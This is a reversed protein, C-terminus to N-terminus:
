CRGWVQLYGGGHPSPSAMSWLGEPIKFHLDGIFLQSSLIPVVEGGGGVDRGCLGEIIEGMSICVYVAGKTNGSGPGYSPTLLLQWSKIKISSLLDMCLCIYVYNKM